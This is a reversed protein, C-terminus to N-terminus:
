FFELSVFIELLCGALFSLLIKIQDLLAFSKHAQLTNILVTSATRIEKCSNLVVGLYNKFFNNLNNEFPELNLYFM